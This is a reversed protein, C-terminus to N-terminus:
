RKRRAKAIIRRNYGRIMTRLGFFLLILAFLVLLILKYPIVWFGISATLPTNADGYVLDLRARYHGFLWKKTWEGEFRRISGPLVNRAKANADLTAVKKGFTDFIQVKGTPKVHVTGTNQLRETFTLPGTEFFTGRKEGQRIFFEAVALKQTQPGSVNLLILAGISAKLAVGTGELEPPTGTFRVVGYHGGPEANKPVVIRISATKIERPVLQFSPVSPIWFKLSYRTAETQDLLIKPNGNEEEDATFDDAQGNVVLTAPTINRIKINAIVTQGPDAKLEIVPPSIELGQGFDQTPPNTAPPTAANLPLVWSTALILGFVLQLKRHM